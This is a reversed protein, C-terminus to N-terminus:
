FAGGLTWGLADSINRGESDYLALTDLDLHADDTHCNVEACVFFTGDPPNQSRAVRIEHPVGGLRFTVCAVDMGNDKGALLLYKRGDSEIISERFDVNGYGIHDIRYNGGSNESMVASGLQGDIEMLVYRTGGVAVSDLIRVDPTQATSRGHSYYDAICVALNDPDAATHEPRPSVVSKEPRCFMGPGAAFLLVAFASLVIGKRRM